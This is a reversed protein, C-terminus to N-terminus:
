YVKRILMTKIIESIKHSLPYDLQNRGFLFPKMIKALCKTAAIRVVINEKASLYKEPITLGKQENRREIFQLYRRADKFEFNELTKFAMEKRQVKTDVFEAAQNPVTPQNGLLKSLCAHDASKEHAANSPFPIDLLIKLLIQEVGAAVQETETFKNLNQVAEMWDEEIKIYGAALIM